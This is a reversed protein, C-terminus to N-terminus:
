EVARGAVILKRLPGHLVDVIPEGFRAVGFVRRLHGLVQRVAAKCSNSSTKQVIMGKPVPPRRPLIYGIPELAILSRVM